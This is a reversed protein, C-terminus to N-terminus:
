DAIKERAVLRARPMQQRFVTERFFRILQERRGVIKVQEPILYSLESKMISMKYDINPAFRNDLYWAFFLGFLLGPPTFGENGNIVRTYLGKSESCPYMRALRLYVDLEAARFFSHLEGPPQMELRYIRGVTRGSDTVEALEKRRAYNGLLSQGLGVLFAMELRDSEAAQDRRINVCGDVPDFFSFVNDWQQCRKWCGTDVMTVGSVYGLHDIRIDPHRWIIEVLRELLQEREEPVMARPLDDVTSRRAFAMGEVARRILSYRRSPGMGDSRIRASFSRCFPLANNGDPVSLWGGARLGWLIQVVLAFAAPDHQIVNRQQLLERSFICAEVPELGYQRVRSGDLYIPEKQEIAYNRLVSGSVDALDLSLVHTFLDRIGGSINHDYARILDSVYFKREPADRTADTEGKQVWINAVLLKLAKRNERILETMGPVQLIPIISTYLSGPAMIIVDANTIIERVVPPLRPEEMFEVQVRDVPYGRRASSSKSEGTVLVGNAYLVQLEAPTTTAPLVSRSGAGMALSLAEIGALTARDLAASDAAWRDNESGPPLEAAIAAAMLLNGLCQPRALSTQMRPDVFLEEILARLYDQLPPPLASFGTGSDKILQEPSAPVSIFRYNFLGHLAAAVRRAQDRDLNYTKRLGSSRVASLLVHRLDGLAVLPFDKLLEGTSGGDDTVCVISHLGPFREKLGAFPNEPWEHRRSDGGVINSLGTGGGLVVVQLGSTDLDRFAAALGRWRAALESSGPMTVEGLVLSIVRETLSGRAMFDLGSLNKEVLGQLLPQLSTATGSGTV